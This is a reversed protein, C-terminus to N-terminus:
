DTVQTWQKDQNEVFLFWGAGEVGGGCFYLSFYRLLFLGTNKQNLFTPKEIFICTEWWMLVSHRVRVLWIQHYSALWRQVLVLGGEGNGTRKRLRFQLGSGRRGAPSCVLYGM